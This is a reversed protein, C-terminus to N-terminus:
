KKEAKSRLRANIYPSNDNWEPKNDSNAINIILRTLFEIHQLAADYNIYQNLDDFPTHYFNQQYNIIKKIGEETSINQYDTGDLVLISPIGAKAFAIQDSRNFAETSQFISPISDIKLGTEEATKKFFKDLTSYKQGIGVIGNFKDFSALGDININAVTKYLPVVPRDTYYTTGLLGYEEGTSLFFLISRKPKVKMLSMIRSIELLAACGAANDFVGNYISDNKVPPGIGLHDYHASIIIYEDKLEPDSGQLLGLANNAIFDKKKFKGDFSLQTKLSFSKVRGNLDMKFIDDISYQSNEFISEASEPNIIVGFMGSAFYALTIDDFDYQRKLHEWEFFNDKLPNPIIVIGKAGRSFAMRIKSEAQSYITNFGAEFFDPNGSLPEGDLVVAIKNEVDLETYDNYDYEPAIIGYGAFVMELPSPIFTQQGTKFLVYDNFLELKTNNNKKYLILESEKLPKNSHMPILQFYSNNDGIKYLGYNNFQKALYNAALMGGKQGTGRGEFEDSGLKEIHTRISDKSLYADINDIGQAM